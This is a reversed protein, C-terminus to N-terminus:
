DELIRWIGQSFNNPVELPRVEPPTNLLTGVFRSLLINPLNPIRRVLVYIVIVLMYGDYIVMGWPGYGM